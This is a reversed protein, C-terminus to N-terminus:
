SLDYLYPDWPRGRLIGPRRELLCRLSFVSLFVGGDGLYEVRWYFM